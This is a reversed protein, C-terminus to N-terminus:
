ILIGEGKGERTKNVILGLNTYFKQVSLGVEKSCMDTQYKNKM